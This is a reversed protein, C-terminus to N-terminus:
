ADAAVEVYRWTLKKSPATLNRISAHPRSRDFQDLQIWEDVIEVGTKGNSTDKDFDMSVGQRQLKQLGAPMSCSGSPLLGLFHEVLHAAVARGDAPITRGYKYTVQWADIEPDEVETAPDATLDQSCPFWSGDVLWLWRRDPAIAMGGTGVEAGNVLLSSVEGIPGPLRLASLQCTCSADHGLDVRPISNVPVGQRMMRASETRSVHTRVPRLTKEVVGYRRGTAQWLRRSVFPILWALTTGDASAARGGLAQVAAVTTWAEVTEPAATITM